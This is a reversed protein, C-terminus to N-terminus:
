LGSPVLQASQWSGPPRRGRHHASEKQGRAGPDRQRRGARRLFERADFSADHRDADVTDVEVDAAIRADEGVIRDDEV